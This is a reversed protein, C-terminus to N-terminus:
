SYHLMNAVHYMKCRIHAYSVETNQYSIAKHGGNFWVNLQRNALWDMTQYRKCLIVISVESIPVLVSVPTPGDRVLHMGCQM